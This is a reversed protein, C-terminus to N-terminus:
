TKEKQRGEAPYKRGFLAYRLMSILGSFKYGADVYRELVYFGFYYFRCFSWVAVAILVFTKLSPHEFLLLGGSLLGLLLFLFGKAIIWRPNKLDRM